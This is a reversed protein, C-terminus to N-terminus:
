IALHILFIFTGLAIAGIIGIITIGIMAEIRTPTIKINTIPAGIALTNLASVTQNFPMCPAFITIKAIIIPAIIAKSM